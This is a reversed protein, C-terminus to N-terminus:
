EVAVMETALEVLVMAFATEASWFAIERVGDAVDPSVVSLLITDDDISLLRATSAELHNADPQEIAHIPSDADIRDLAAPDHSLVTVSVGREAATELAALLQPELMSPDPAGYLIESEADAILDVARDRVSESGRVTWLAESQEDEGGATGRVDELYGFADRGASELQALLRKEAKDPSVPRYVTPRTQQVDLLGREELGEAAGYVQSRPVDTIEAVDSATGTGLKQLAVFVRAEYTKLGLRTLADIADEEEM